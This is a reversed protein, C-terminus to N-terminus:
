KKKQLIAFRIRAWGPAYNYKKEITLLQPLTKAGWIEIQKARKQIAIEQIEIESLWGGKTKILRPKVPIVHQCEPCVNAPLFAAFCIPCQRVAINPDQQYKQKRGELTWDYDQYPLGHRWINGVHDSYICDEKGDDPRSGRGPIQVALPLSWTPRLGAVYRVRPVDFGQTFLNVNTLIDIEGERYASVIRKRENKPTTGDLHVANIGEACFQAAVNRSHERSICFILGSKGAALRQYHEICNGTVSPKDVIEAAQMPNFDGGIISARSMDVNSPAFTRFPVLAGRAKLEKPSLGKVMKTFYQGLGIGDPRSPTADLGIHIANPFQRHIISCEPSSISRCEDWIIMDPTPLHQIRNKLSKVSCIQSYKEPQLIYDAAVIGYDVNLNQFKDATQEVLEIRNCIFWCRWEKSVATGTMFGGVITKGGGTSIQYLITKHGDRIAQRIAAVDTEQYDRLVIM